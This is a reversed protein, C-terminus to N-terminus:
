LLLGHRRRLQRTLHERATPALTLMTAPRAFQWLTSGLLVAGCYRQSPHVPLMSAPAWGHLDTAEPYVMYLRQCHAHYKSWAQSREHRTFRTKAEWICLEGRGNLSAVDPRKGSITGVGQAVLHGREALAGALATVLAFHGADRM